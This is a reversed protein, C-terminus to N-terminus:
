AAIPVPEPKKAEPEPEFEIIEAQQDEILWSRGGLTGNVVEQPVGRVDWM